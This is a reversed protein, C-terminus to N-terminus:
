PKMQSCVLLVIGILKAILAAVLDGVANEYVIVAAVGCEIGAPDGLGGNLVNNISGYGLVDGSEYVLYICKNLLNNACSKDVVVDVVKVTCGTRVNVSLVAAGIKSPEILEVALEAGNIKGCEVSLGGCGAAVPSEDGYCNDVLVEYKIGSLSGLICNLIM